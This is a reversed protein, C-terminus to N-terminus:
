CGRHRPGSAGTDQVSVAAQVRARELEVAIGLWTSAQIARRPISKQRREWTRSIMRGTQSGVDLRAPQPQAVSKMAVVVLEDVRGGDRGISASPLHSYALRDKGAAPQPVRKRGAVLAWGLSISGSTSLGTMWYADFLRDRGADLLDDDDGAALLPRDFIVEVEADLQLLQELRAAVDLHQALDPGDRVQGLDGVNALLLLEAQAVGDQHGLLQDAVLRERHDEGSSTTTPSRGQM